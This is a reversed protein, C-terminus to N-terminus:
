KGNDKTLLILPRKGGFSLMIMDDAGRPCGKLEGQPNSSLDNFPLKTNGRVM